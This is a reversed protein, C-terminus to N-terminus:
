QRSELITLDREAFDNHATEENLVVRLCHLVTQTTEPPFGPGPNPDCVRSLGEDDLEDLVRDVIGQVDRRLALADEISVDAGADIGLFSLDPLFTPPLAERHYPATGGLVVRGVWADTVFVLHRLTEAYSWEGDVRERCSGAGLALARADTARWREKVTSWAARLGAVAAPGRALAREAEEPSPPPGDQGVPM